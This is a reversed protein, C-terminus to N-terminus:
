KPSEIRDLGVGHMTGYSFQGYYADGNSWKLVGVGHYLDNVWDGTYEAGTSYRFTRHYFVSLM